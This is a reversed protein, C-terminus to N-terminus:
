TTYYVSSVLRTTHFQSVALSNTFGDAPSFLLARQTLWELLATIHASWLIAAHVLLWTWKNCNRIHAYVNLLRNRESSYYQLYWFYMWIASLSFATVNLTISENNKVNKNSWIITKDVVQWMYTCVFLSLLFYIILPICFKFSCM